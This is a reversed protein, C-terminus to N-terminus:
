GSPIIILWQPHYDASMSSIDDARSSHIEFFEDPDWNDALSIDFM